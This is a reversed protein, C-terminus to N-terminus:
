WSPNCCPLIMFDMNIMMIMIKIKIIIIVKVQIVISIMEQDIIYTGAFNVNYWTAGPPAPMM